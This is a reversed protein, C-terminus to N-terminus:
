AIFNGAPSPSPAYMSQVREFLEQILEANRENIKMQMAQEGNHEHEMEDLREQFDDIIMNMKRIQKAQKEITSQLEAVFASGCDSTCHGNSRGKVQGALAASEPELDRHMREFILELKDLRAGMAKVSDEMKRRDSEEQLAQARIEWIRREREQLEAAMESGRAAGPTDFAERLRAVDAGHASLEQLMCRQKHKLAQIESLIAIGGCGGKLDDLEVRMTSVAALCAAVGDVGGGGRDSARSGAAPSSQQQEQLEVDRRSDNDLKAAVATGSSALMDLQQQLGRMGSTQEGPGTHAHMPTRTSRESQLLESAGDRLHPSVRLDAPSRMPPTHPTPTGAVPRAAAHSADGVDATDAEWVMRMTSAGGGPATAGSTSAARVSAELREVDKALAMVQLHAMEDFRRLSDCTEKMTAVEASLARAAEEIAPQWPRADSTAREEAAGRSGGLGSVAGALETQSDQLATIQTRLAAIQRKLGVIEGVREYASKSALVEADVRELVERDGAVQQQLDVLKQTLQMLKAEHAERDAEMAALLEAKVKAFGAADANRGVRASGSLGRPPAGALRAGCAPANEAPPSAPRAHRAEPRPLPTAHLRPAPGGDRTCNRGSSSAVATESGTSSTVPRTANSATTPRGDEVRLDAATLSRPVPRFQMKKVEALRGGVAAELLAVMGENGNALEVMTRGRKDKFNAPAGALVLEKATAAHGLAVAIHLPTQGMTNRVRLTAVPVACVLQACLAASDAAAAAHLATNGDRDKQEPKAGAAILCQITAESGGGAAIHLPRQGTVGHIANALFPSTHLAQQIAETKGAKVDRFFQASM